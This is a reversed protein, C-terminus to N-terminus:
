PSGEADGPAFRSIVAFSALSAGVILSSQALGALPVALATPTQTVWRLFLVLDILSGLALFLGGGAAARIM